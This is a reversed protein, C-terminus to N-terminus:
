SKSNYPIIYMAPIRCLRQPQRRQTVARGADALRNPRGILPNRPSSAGLM